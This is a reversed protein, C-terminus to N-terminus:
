VSAHSRIRTHMMESARVSSNGIDLINIHIFCINIKEFIKYKINEIIM